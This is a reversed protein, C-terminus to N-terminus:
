LADSLHDSRKSDAYSNVSLFKIRDVCHHEPKEEISEDVWLHWEIETERVHGKNNIRGLLIWKM